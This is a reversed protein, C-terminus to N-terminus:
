WVYDLDCILFVVASVFWVLCFLLFYLFLFLYCVKLKILSSTRGREYLSGTKRMIAGEGGGSIIGDIAVQVHENSKGLIRPALTKVYDLLHFSLLSLSLLLYSSPSSPLCSSVIMPHDHLICIVLQNYRVEFPKDEFEISPVDFCVMRCYSLDSLCFLVFCSSVLRSLVFYLVILCYFLVLLLSFFYYVFFYYLFTFVLRLVHWSVIEPLDKFM